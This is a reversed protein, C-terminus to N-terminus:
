EGYGNAGGSVSVGRELRWARRRPRRATRAAAHRPGPRRSQGPAHDTDVGVGPPLLEGWGAEDGVTVHRM